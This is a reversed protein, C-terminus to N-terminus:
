KPVTMACRFGVFDKRTTSGPWYWRFTSAVSEDTGNFNGGRTVAAELSSTLENEIADGDANSATWEEVNGAMDVCGCASVGDPYSGVPATGQRGTDRNNACDSQFTEGWPYKLGKPGRAAAEWEVETPLRKGISKAYAYADNFSVGSVPHDDKDPPSRPEGDEGLTFTSPMRDKRKEPPLSKLFKLYDANTVETRDIFFAKVSMKTGRRDLGRRPFAQDPGMEYTGAKVYVMGPPLRQGSADFKEPSRAKELKVGLERYAGYKKAFEAAEPTVKFLSGNWVAAFESKTDFLAGLATGVSNDLDQTAPNALPRYISEALIAAVPAHLSPDLDSGALAAVLWETAIQIQQPQSTAKGNKGVSLRELFEPSKLRLGEVIRAQLPAFNTRYRNWADNAALYVEVLVDEAAALEVRSTDFQKQVKDIEKDKSADKTQRAFADATSVLSASFLASLAVLGVILGRRAAGSRPAGDIRTRSCRSSAGHLTSM